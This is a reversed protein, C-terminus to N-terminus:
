ATDGGRHSLTSGPRRLSLEFFGPSADLGQSPLGPSLYRGLSRTRSQPAGLGGLVNRLHKEAGNAVGDSPGSVQQSM